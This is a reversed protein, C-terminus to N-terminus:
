RLKENFLVDAHQAQAALRAAATLPEHRWKRAEWCRVLAAPDKALSAARYSAYWAEEEFGGLGARKTFAEIAEDTRGLCALADAFYFTARPENAEYGPRLLELDREHKTERNRGDAHHRVTLGLSARQKRGGDDLYEHTPGVYRWNFAGRMILPLRWVTRNECVETTWIDVTPDPNSALWSGFGPHIDTTMDADLRLLWPATWRALTLADTLNEGFNVWPYEYVNGPIGELAAKIREITRDTSGTDVITWHSLLPAISKLCRTIVAEENRVIMVLGIPKSM